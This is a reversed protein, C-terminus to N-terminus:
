VPASFQGFSSAVHTLLRTKSNYTFEVALKNSSSAEQSRSWGRGLWLYRRRWELKWYEEIRSKCPQQVASSNSSTMHCYVTIYGYNIAAHDSQHQRCEQLSGLFHIKEGSEKGEEGEVKEKSGGHRSCVIQQISHPSRHSCM